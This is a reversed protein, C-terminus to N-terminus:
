PKIETNSLTKMKDYQNWIYCHIKYNEDSEAPIAISAELNKETGIQLLGTFSKYSIMAGSGDKLAITVAYLQDIPLDFNRLVSKVSITKNAVDKLSIVPNNNTDLVQFLKLDFSSPRTTFSTTYDSILSVPTNASEVGSLVKISYEYKYLLDKNFTIQLNNGQLNINYSDSPLEVGSLKRLVKVSNKNITSTDVDMNFQLNVTPRISVDVANASPQAIDISIPTFPEVVAKDSIWATPTGINTTTDLVDYKGSAPNFLNIPINMPTVEFKIYKGLDSPNLTYNSSEGATIAGSKMETWPGSSSTSSYWKYSSGNEIDGNFDSYQYSATLTKEVNLYGLVQVKAKPKSAVEYISM